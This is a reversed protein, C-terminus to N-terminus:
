SVGASNGSHWRSKHQVLRLFVPFDIKPIKTDPIGDYSIHGREFVPIVGTGQPLIEHNGLSHLVVAIRVTKCLRIEPSAFVLHGADKAAAYGEEM